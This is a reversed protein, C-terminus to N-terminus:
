QSQTLPRIRSEPPPEPLPHAPRAMLYADEGDLYYGRIRDVVQYGLKRYLSIAPTNSVRVELYYETAGYYETMHRMAFIMLHKAIGRRRVEPRVALSIVHGKKTLVGQKFNSLGLEVRCMVYAMVQGHVEAVLFAKPFNRYHEVFFYTPYNEPLCTRNIWVVRELDSPRFQRLIYTFGDPNTIEVAFEESM